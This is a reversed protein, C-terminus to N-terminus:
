CGKCISGLSRRADLERRKLREDTLRRQREAGQETRRLSADSRASSNAAAAAVPPPASAAGQVSAAGQACAAGATSALLAAPLAALLATRRIAM